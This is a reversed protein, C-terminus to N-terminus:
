QEHGPTRKGKQEIDWGRVEEGGEGALQWGARWRHTGMKRTLETQENSDVHSHLWITNDKEPQSIERLIINELDMWVTAIPLIKKKKVVLYYEMRYIKWLQKIWEDVSPCKPQKWIETIIFLAATFMPTSINKWILTKPKKLYIGLLSIAPDFPLDMKLQKLYRWVAKWLPQM